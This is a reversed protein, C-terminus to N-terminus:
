NGEFQDGLLWNLKFEVSFKDPSRNLVEFRILFSFFLVCSLEIRVPYRTESDIRDLLQVVALFLDKACSSPSRESKFRNEGLLFM